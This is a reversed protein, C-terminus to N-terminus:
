GVESEPGPEPLKGQVRPCQEPVYESLYLNGRGIADTALECVAGCWISGTTRSLRVKVVERRPGMM